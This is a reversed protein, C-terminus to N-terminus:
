CKVSSVYAVAHWPGGDIRERPPDYCANTGSTSVSAGVGVGLNAEGGVTSHSRDLHYTQTTETGQTNMDGILTSIQTVNGHLVSELSGAASPDQALDITGTFTSGVGSGDGADRNLSLLPEHGGEGEGAGGAPAGGEPAKGGKANLNGVTTSSGGASWVGDGSGTVQIELPKWKSSFLVNAQGNVNGEGDAHPGFLSQALAGSANGSLSVTAEWDGKQPGSTIKELGGEGNISASVSANLSGAYAGASGEASGQIGGGAATATLYQGPLSGPGPAGHAGTVKDFLSTAGPIQGLLSSSFGDHAALGAGGGSSIQKWYKEASGVNHFSWTTSGAIYGGGGASAEAEAGGLPGLEIGAGVKASAGLDGTNVEAITATGDSYRTLTLTYTHSGDVIAVRGSYGVTKTTVGVVYRGPASCASDSIRLIQAVACEVAHSVRTNMGLTFLGAVMAAVLILLGSLEIVDQGTEGSLRRWTLRRTLLRGIVVVSYATSRRHRCSGHTRVLRGAPGLRM